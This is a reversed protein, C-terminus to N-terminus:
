IAIFKFGHKQAYKHAASNKKGKITFGKLKHETFGNKGETEYFGFAEGGIKVVNKPLTVSKLKPCNYFAEKGIIVKKNGTFKLKKLRINGCVSEKGLKELKKPLTLSKLGTFSLSGDKIESIKEPVKFSKQKNYEPFYILETKDKNYLIGNQSCFSKNDKSVSVSELSNVNCRDFICDYKFKKLNKGFYLKKIDTYSVSDLSFEELSDPLKLSKLKYCGSFVKPNLKKLGKGLKVKKLRPCSLSLDGLETVSDPLSVEEIYKNDCCGHTIEYDYGADYYYKLDLVGFSVVKKGDIESPVIVKSATGFYDLVGVDSDRYYYTFDRYTYLRFKVARAFAASSSAGFLLIASLILSILKKMLIVGKIIYVFFVGTEITLADFFTLFTEYKKM